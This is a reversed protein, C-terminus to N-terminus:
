KPEMAPMLKFDLDYAWPASNKWGNVVRKGHNPNVPEDLKNGEFGDTISFANTFGAKILTEAAVASRGGAVCMTMLLEDPKFRKRVEAVVQPNNELVVNGKQTDFKGSWNRMPINIAMVPHGVYVYEEPTRVDIVAVKEPSAKWMNYAEIATSYKGLSTRKKEDKPIEGEAFSLCVLATVLITSLTTLLSAKKM